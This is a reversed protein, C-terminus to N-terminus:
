SVNPLRPGQLHAALDGLRCVVRTKHRWVIDGEVQAVQLVRAGPLEPWPRNLEDMIHTAIEDAAATVLEATTGGGIVNVRGDTIVLAEDEDFGDLYDLGGPRVPTSWIAGDLDRIAWPFDLTTVVDRALRECLAAIDM